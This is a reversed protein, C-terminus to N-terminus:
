VGRTLLVEQSMRVRGKRVAMMGAVKELSIMALLKALLDIQTDPENISISSKTSATDESDGRAEQEM